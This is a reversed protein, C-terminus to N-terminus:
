EEVTGEEEEDRRRGKQKERGPGKKGKRGEKGKEEVANDMAEGVGKQREAM